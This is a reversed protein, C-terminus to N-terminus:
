GSREGARLIPQLARRLEGLAALFSKLIEVATAVGVVGLCAFLVPHGGCVVSIAVGGEEPRDAIATRCEETERGGGGEGIDIAAM